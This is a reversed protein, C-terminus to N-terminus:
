MRGLPCRWRTYHNCEQKEKGRGAGSNVMSRNKEMCRNRGKGRSMPNSRGKPRSRGKSRSEKNREKGQGNLVVQFLMVRELFEPFDSLLREFAKFRNVLGKTYDLRDVGLIM